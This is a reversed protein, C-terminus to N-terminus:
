FDLRELLDARLDEHKLLYTREDAKKQEIKDKTVNFEQLSAQRKKAMENKNQNLTTQM